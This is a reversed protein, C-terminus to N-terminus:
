KRKKWHYGVFFNFQQNYIKWQKQVRPDEIVPVFGRQYTAGVSLGCNMEYRLQMTIGADMKYRFGGAATPTGYINKDKELSSGLLGSVYPGASLRFGQFYFTPTFPAILLYTSKFRSTYVSGNSSDPLQIAVQSQGLTVESQLGFYKSFRSQVEVGFMLGTLPKRYGGVSLRPLDSGYLSGRSVGTKIGFSINRYSSNDRQAFLPLFFALYFIIALIHKM